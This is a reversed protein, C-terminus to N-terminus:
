APLARRRERDQNLRHATVGADVLAYIHVLPGLFVMWLFASSFFMLLGKGPQGNYVQGLGPWLVSLIMSATPSRYDSRLQDQEALATSHNPKRVLATSSTPTPLHDTPWPPPSPEHPPHWGAERFLPPIEDHLPASHRAHPSPPPPPTPAPPHHPPAQLMAAPPPTPLVVGYEGHSARYERTKELTEGKPIASEPLCYLVRGDDATELELISDLVLEDLCKEAMKIPVKLFFAVNAPTLYDYGAEIIMELIAQEFDLRRM